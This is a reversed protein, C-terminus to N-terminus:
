PLRCTLYASSARSLAAPGVRDSTLKFPASFRASTSPRIITNEQLGLVPQAGVNAEITTDLAPYVSSSTYTKGILLGSADNGALLTDFARPYGGGALNWEFEGAMVVIQGGRVYNGVVKNHGGHITSGGSNEMWNSEFIDYSGARADIRGGPSDLVTNFRVVNGGCKFDIIGHGQMHREILNSEVYWGTLMSATSSRGSECVEMADSQGSSYDGPDPKAPFDHFYNHHVWTNFHFTSPDKEATRIGARYPYSGVESALWPHPRSFENYAIEGQNGTIATVAIDRWDTFRNAIVKNNTGGLFVRASPGSFNIGKVITRAGNMTFGTTVTSAFNAAGEVIVPSTMPCVTNIAYTADYTGPALRITDGCSANTMTQQLATATGVSVVRRGELGSCTALPDQYDPTDSKGTLNTPCAQSDGTTTVGDADVLQPPCPPEAAASAASILALVLLRGGFFKGQRGVLRVNRTESMIHETM